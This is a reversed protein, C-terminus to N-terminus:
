SATYLASIWNLNRGGEKRDQENFTQMDVQEYGTQVLLHDLEGEKLLTYERIEGSSLPERVQVDGGGHRTLLFLIGGRRLIRRFEKLTPQIDEREVHHLSEHAWIGQVSERALPLQRMDARIFPLHPYQAKGIKLLETSIDIGVVQHGLQQFRDMDRGAGCGISVVESRPALLEDFSNIAADSYDHARRTAYDCAIKDYVAATREVREAM